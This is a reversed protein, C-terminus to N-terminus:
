VCQKTRYKESEMSILESEQAKTLKNISYPSSSMLHAKLVSEIDRCHSLSKGVTYVGDNTVVVKPTYGEKKIFSSLVSKTLKKCTIFKAGCYIVKDPFISFNFNDIFILIASDEVLHTVTREKTVQNFISSIRNVSKYHSFNSDHNVEFRNLCNSIIQHVETISNSTVVIGHNALLILKEGKWRKLLEKSLEVGPAVYSLFCAKPFLENCIERADECALISLTQIPHLHVVYRYLFSHMYTEMSGRPGTISDNYATIKGYRGAEVDTKLEKNDITAYGSEETVSSLAVGSAKIVMLDNFKVSINGGAAQTLDFREGYFCCLEALQTIEPIQQM